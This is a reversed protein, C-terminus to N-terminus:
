INLGDPLIFIRTGSEDIRFWKNAVAFDRGAKYADLSGGSTYLFESNTVGTYTHAYEDKIKSKAIRLLERAAAEPAEFASEKKFQM